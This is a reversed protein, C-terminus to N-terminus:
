NIAYKFVRVTEERIDPMPLGQYDNTVIYIADNINITNVIYGPIENEFVKEGQDSFVELFTLYARKKFKNIIYEMNATMIFNNKLICPNRIDFGKVKTRWREKGDPSLSLLHRAWIVYLNGDSDIVPADVISGSEPKYEWRYRMELDMSVICDHLNGYIVDSSTQSFPIRGKFYENKEKLINGNPDILYMKDYFYFGLIMQGRDTLVFPESWINAKFSKEWILSGELSLRSLRGSRKDGLFDFIYLSDQYIQLSNVTGKLPYTWLLQGIESIKLLASKNANENDYYNTCYINSESDLVSGSVEKQTDYIVRSKGDKIGVIKGDYHFGYKDGENCAIILESKPNLYLKEGKNWYIYRGLSHSEWKNILIL